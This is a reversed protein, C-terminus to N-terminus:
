TKLNWFKRIKERSLHITFNWTRALYCCCQLVDKFTQSSSIVKPLTTPDLLFQMNLHDGNLIFLWRRPVLFAKWHFLARARAEELAPCHLLIHTLTGTEGECAPLRCLGLTNSNSWHNMLKDTRYRGSLM